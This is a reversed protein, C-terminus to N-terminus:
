KTAKELYEKLADKAEDLSKAYTWISRIGTRGAIMTRVSYTRDGKEGSFSSIQESTIFIVHGDWTKAGGHIESDFAKMTLKDFFHGEPNQESYHKKINAISIAKTKM